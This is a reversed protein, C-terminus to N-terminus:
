FQLKWVRDSLSRNANDLHGVAYLANNVLVTSAVFVDPPFKGISWTDNQPDYIDFSNTSTVDGTSGFFLIKSNYYIAKEANFNFGGPQSLNTFSSTQTNVDRIEVKCTYAHDWTPEHYLIAGGAWYIKGELYISSMYGTTQSLSSVSWTDTSNDYIDISTELAGLAGLLGKQGGAFYVKNGAATANVRVRPEPLKKVSWSDAMMDYVNIRGYPVGDNAFFVKNGVAAISVVYAAGPVDVKSWTNTSVDYIDIRNTRQEGGAFFIKNGITASTMKVKPVSLNATAWTQTNFDYVDVRSSPKFGPQTSTSGGALLLKSGETAATIDIRPLPISAFPLLAINVIPRNLPECGTSQPAPLVSIQVTDKATLGGNDTVTLEFQYFGAALVKVITKASDPKVINSSAPGEIKVWKYSTITGDPDISTSGDLVTSEKPLTMTTDRGANAIPPKNRDKCGKCSLEKKCSISFVLATLFAFTTLNLIRKM